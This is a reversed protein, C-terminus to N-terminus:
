PLAVPAVADVFFADFTVFHKDHALYVHAPLNYILPVPQIIKIM